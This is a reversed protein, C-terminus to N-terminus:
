DYIWGLDLVRHMWTFVPVQVTLRYVGNWSLYGQGPRSVPQDSLHPPYDPWYTGTWVFKPDSIGFMTIGTVEVATSPDNDDKDFHEVSLEFMESVCFDFRFRTPEVLKVTRRDSGIGICIWPQAIPRLDVEIVVPYEIAM